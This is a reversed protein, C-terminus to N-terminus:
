NGWKAWIGLKGLKGLKWLKGMEGINRFHPNASRRYDASNRFYPYPSGRYDSSNRIQKDATIQPTASIRIQPVATIQPIASNRFQYNASYPLKRIQPIANAWVHSFTVWADCFKDWVVCFFAPNRAFLEARRIAPKRKDRREGIQGPESRSRIRWTYLLKLTRAGDVGNSTLESICLLKGDEAKRRTAGGQPDRSFKFTEGLM